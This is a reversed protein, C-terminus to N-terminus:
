PTIKVQDASSALTLWTQGPNLGIPASNADGLKLQANRSDKQWVGETVSGDQFIYAKGTGTTQYVSYIGEYHHPMILVVVVKPNIQKGNEDVHPKGAQSRLYSNSAADYDFRPNYLFGSIAVDVAHANPTESKKEAKRVLGTFNSTGWGKSRQLELLTARSSYLNHPAFRNSDRYFSSGNPGHDLDKLGLSAVEALAQGSGGAHVIAADYPWFFDIFTPRLSRIPGIREPQSEMFIANFRTIGGETIAETVIGADYLGSQPRADPSNEIQVATTPLQNLEKSIEVGTLRSPETTKVPEPPVYVTKTPITTDPGPTRNLITFASVSGTLLISVGAIVLLWQKKSLPPLQFRRKAALKKPKVALPATDDAVEDPTKFTLEEPESSIAAPKNSRVAKPQPKTAQKIDDRMKDSITDGSIIVPCILHRSPETTKAAKAAWLLMEKTRLFLIISM